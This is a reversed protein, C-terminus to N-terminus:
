SPVVNCHSCSSRGCENECGCSLCVWSRKPMAEIEDILRQLDEDNTDGAQLQTLAGRATVEDVDTLAAKVVSFSVEGRLCLEALVEAGVPALDPAKSLIWEAAIDGQGEAMLLLTRAVILRSRSPRYRLLKPRLYSSVSAPEAHNRFADSIVEAPWSGSLAIQLASELAGFLGAEVAPWKTLPVADCAEFLLMVGNWDNRTMAEIRQAQAALVARDFNGLGAVLTLFSELENPRHELDFVGSAYTEPPIITRFFAVIEDMRRIARYSCQPASLRSIPEIFLPLRRAVGAVVDGIAELIDKSSIRGLGLESKILAGVTTSHGSHVLKQLMQIHVKVGLGPSKILKTAIDVRAVPLVSAAGMVVQEYLDILHDCRTSSHHKTSAWGDLFEDLANFTMPDRPFWRLRGLLVATGGWVRPLKSELRDLLTEAYSPPFSHRLLISACTWASAEDESIRRILSEFFEARREDSLQAGSLLASGVLNAYGLDSSEISLEMLIRMSVPDLGCALVVSEGDIEDRTRDELWARKEHENNNRAIRRADAVDVFWRSSARMAANSESALFVGMEDWFNVAETAAHDARGKALCWETAFYTSVYAVLQQHLLPDPSLLHYGIENFTGLLATTAEGDILAGLEVRGQRRGRVEWRAVLHEVLASLIQARSLPCGEVGSDALLVLLGMSLLPNARIGADRDRYMKLLEMRESVWGSRQQASILRLESLRNAVRELVADLDKADLLKIHSWHLSSASAYGADRTALVAEADDHMDEMAMAIFDVVRRRHERCEDLSDMLLVAHGTERLRELLEEQVDSRITSPLVKVGVRVLEELPNEHADLTKILDPLHVFLPLPEEADDVLQAALRRLATTKGMGPAGTLVCRTERRQAWWFPQEDARERSVLVQSTMPAIEIDGLSEHLTALRLHSRMRVHARYEALAGARAELRAALAGQRDSILPLHMERLCDLWGELSEGLRQGSRRWVANQLASFAAAGHGDEVVRGNLMEIANQRYSSTDEHIDDLILVAALRKIADIDGPKLSQLHAEFSALASMEATSPAAAAHNRTRDLATKLSKLPATSKGVVIVLRDREADMDTSQFHTAIQRVTKSFETGDRNSISLSSKAQLWLRGGGRMKLMLDDVAASAEPLLHGDPVRYASALGLGALPREVLAHVLLWAAVAARFQSGTENAAGGVGGSAETMDPM